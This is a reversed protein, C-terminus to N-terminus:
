PACRTSSRRRSGWSAAWRSPWCPRSGRCASRRGPRGCPRWSRPRAARRPGPEKGPWTACCLPTGTPRSRPWSGTGTWRCSGSTSPIAALLRELIELGQETPISGLGRRALRDGQTAAMGVEAWPGWALSSAPKGEARRLHALADLFGNAAAYNAQGASGLLAAASSFLLFFDLPERELLRHLLWAGLVKARFVAALATADLQIVAQDQLVGAAHVVGRIPPWGEQRFGELYEALAGEDAVDVSALHVAAGRAELDRIAAVQRGIRGAPDLGSWASRPPLQTRGLLILRRAGRAIM